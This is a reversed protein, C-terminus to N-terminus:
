WLASAGVGLTVDGSDTAVVVSADLQVLPTPLFTAGAGVFPQRGGAESTEGFAEVYLGARGVAYGLSLGAAADWTREGAVVEGLGGALAVGLSFADTLSYDANLGLEGAWGTSYADSGTPIGLMGVASFALDDSVTLAAKAGAAVDGLGTSRVGHAPFNAIFDPVAVRAELWPLLGYRLLAQPAILDLDGGALGAEVGAELALHGRPVVSAADGFGPRDAEFELEEAVAPSAALLAVLPLIPASGLRNM